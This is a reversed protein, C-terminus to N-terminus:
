VDSLERRKGSPGATDTPQQPRKRQTKATAQAELIYDPDRVRMNRTERPDVIEPLVCNLYFRRLLPVMKDQWFVEERKISVTEMDHDTFLVLDCFQRRTINLQGQIQFFYAHDRKLYVQGDAGVGVCLKKARAADRIKLVPKGDVILNNISPITKVEVLKDQGVLGDPSAGLFPNDPDVFLGCAEVTVGSKNAYREIAIPEHINGYSLYKSHVEKPNTIATVAAHCSTTDRRRCLAGFHSATLLDRRAERWAPNGAQGVTRRELATRKEESCAVAALRDLVADMGTQLAAESIDPEAASPGYDADAGAARAAAKHRAVYGTVFRRAKTRVTKAALDRARGEFVKKSIAGPSHGLHAKIPSILCPGKTHRLGALTCRMQYGGRKTHDVRKGGSAAAVLGMFREAQNTTVNLTLRDAKSVLPELAKLIGTWVPTKQLFPVNNKELQDKRTCYGERVGATSTAEQRCRAHDGFVHHPGNRLDRRLLEVNGPSNGASTIAGRAAKTLRPILAALEKRASLPIATNTKLRYLKDTYCRVMHNACELKVVRRGYRVGKQVRAYVSSDGDGIMYKFRVGHMEESARFGDVIIHQEMGTSTGEYNRYCRHPKAVTDLKTARACPYCYRNCVGM